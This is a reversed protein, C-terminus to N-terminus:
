AARRRRVLGLGALGLGFLALSMPEPVAAAPVTFAGLRNTGYNAQGGAVSYGFSQSLSVRTLNSGIQGTLKNFGMNLPDNMLFSFPLTFAIDGASATFTFGTGTLDFYAGNGGPIFARNNTVEIGVSTQNGLYINAFPLANGAQPGVPVVNVYLNTTDQGTRVEYATVNSTNSPAGFNSTAAAADYGVTLTSTYVPAAWGAATLGVCLGAALLGRQLTCAIINSV